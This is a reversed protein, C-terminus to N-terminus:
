INVVYPVYTSLYCLIRTIGTLQIASETFSRTNRPETTFFSHKSAVSVCLKVVSGRFVRLYVSFAM